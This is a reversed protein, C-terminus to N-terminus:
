RISTGCHATAWGSPKSAIIQVGIAPNDWVVLHTPALDGLGALPISKAATQWEKDWDIGCYDITWGEEGDMICKEMMATPSQKQEAEQNVALVKTKRINLDLGIFRCASSLERMAFEIDPVSSAKVALDDVYGLWALAQALAQDQTWKMEEEM